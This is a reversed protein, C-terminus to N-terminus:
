LHPPYLHPQSTKEALLMNRFLQTLTIDRYTLSCFRNVRGHKVGMTFISTFIICM